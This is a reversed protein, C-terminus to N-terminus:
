KRYYPKIDNLVSKFSNRYERSSYHDEGLTGKIFKRYAGWPTWAKCNFYNTHICMAGFSTLYEISWKFM